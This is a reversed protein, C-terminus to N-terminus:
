LKPLTADMEKIRYSHSHEYWLAHQNLEIKMRNPQFEVYMNNWNRSNHFSLIHIVCVGVWGFLFCHACLKDTYAIKLCYFSAVSFAFCYIHYQLLIMNLWYKQRHFLIFWFSFPPANFEPLFFFCRFKGNIRLCVVHFLRRFQHCCFYRFSFITSESFVSNSVHFCWLVNEKASIHSYIYKCLLPLTFIACQLIFHSLFFVFSVIFWEM